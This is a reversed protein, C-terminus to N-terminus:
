LIHPECLNVHLFASSDAFFSQNKTAFHHVYLHLLLFRPKLLKQGAICTPRLPLCSYKIRISLLLLTFHDQKTLKQNRINDCPKKQSLIRSSADNDLRMSTGSKNQKYHVYIIFM